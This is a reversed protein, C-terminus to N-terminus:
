FCLEPMERYMELSEPKELRMQRHFRRIFVAAAHDVDDGLGIESGNRESDDDEEEEEEHDDFFYRMFDDYNDDEASEVLETRHPSSFVEENAADFLAIVRGGTGGGIPRGLLSRIKESMASLLVKKSRLLRFVTLRTRTAVAKNKLAMSKGKVTAALVTAIHKLLAAAENKMKDSAASQSAFSSPLLPKLLFPSVIRKPM